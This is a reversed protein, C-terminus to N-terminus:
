NIQVNEVLKMDPVIEDNLLFDFKDNEITKGIELTIKAEENNNIAHRIYGLVSIIGVLTNKNGFFKLECDTTREAKEFEKNLNEAYEKDM